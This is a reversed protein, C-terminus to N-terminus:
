EGAKARAAAAREARTSALNLEGAKYEAWYVDLRRKVVGSLIFVGLLNPLCMGLLMLDSFDLVNTATIISGLFTFVLFIGKFIISSGAGFLQVFCREGYYSWSICTSFAFLVVAAYLVYGFWEYGGTQFASLTLAAGENSAIIEANEPNTHAGTILIVLATTTCVLVTDIFPELLAVIGESVPRATKAASHAIPASGVGAENSFAARQIGVVMVGLIGGYAAQPRFAETFISAFAAPVETVNSALIFLAAAMYAACMLPVIRSAVAGISRIGGIIVLGVMVAMVLGYVWPFRDIFDVGGRVAALSQNIQYANGGGFSAGICLVAFILALTGGLGKGFIGWGMEEIGRRLYRMPGGLVHGDRDVTRYIQGLTCETFKTSMGIVGVIILWLAAGPGGIGIAVAVGGINGLGVTASLATTLAQFHSVEGPEDPDDYDGRTLEIAHKFGRLNIFGMRLTLFVGGLLLWLVVFPVSVGEPAAATQLWGPETNGDKDTTPGTGFDYFILSSIPGVVNAEFFDDIRREWGVLESGAAEAESAAAASPDAAAEGAAAAEPPTEVPSATVEAAPNDGGAGGASEDAAPSQAAVALPLWLVLL